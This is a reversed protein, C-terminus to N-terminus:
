VRQIPQGLDSCAQLLNGFERAIDTDNPALILQSVARSLVPNVTQYGATRLAQAATQSASADRSNVADVYSQVANCVAAEDSTPRKPTAQNSLVALTGLVLLGAFYIGFRRHLPKGPDLPGSIRGIVDPKRTPAGLGIITKCSQMNRAITLWNTFFSIVGWWGFILTRNTLIRFTALGCDRCFPGSVSRRTRFIVKGTESRFTAQAANSAGCLM